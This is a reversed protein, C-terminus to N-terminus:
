GSIGGNLINTLDKLESASTSGSSPMLIELIDSLQVEQGNVTLVAGNAGFRISDIVGVQYTEVTLVDEGNMAKAEVEFTYNGRQLTNGHDDTFDWDLKHIGETKPIGNITKVLNGDEDYIKVTATSADAPLNYGISVNDQGTFEVTNNGVKVEMGILTASMTNNVSQILQYNANVSTALMDNMNSLQELSSFQALQATFQTSDMPNLPDQYKLQETMLRLFDDKGLESKGAEPEYSNTYGIYNSITDIM